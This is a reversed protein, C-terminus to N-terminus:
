GPQPPHPNKGRPQRGARGHQPHPESRAPARPVLRPVTKVGPQRGPLGATPVAKARAPARAVLRHARIEGPSRGLLWAPPVTKLGRERGPCGLPRRRRRGPGAGACRLPAYPNAQSTGACSPWLCPRRRLQCERELSHARNDARARVGRLQVEARSESAPRRGHSRAPRVPKLRPGPGRLWGTPQSGLGSWPCAGLAVWGPSVGGVTVPELDRARRRAPM